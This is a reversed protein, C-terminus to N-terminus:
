KIKNTSNVTFLHLHSQSHDTAQSVDYRLLMDMNQTDYFIAREIEVEKRARVDQGYM